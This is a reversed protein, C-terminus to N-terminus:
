QADFKASAVVGCVTATEGIHRVADEPSISTAAVPFSWLGLLAAVTLRVADMVDRKSLIVVLCQQGSTLEACRAQSGAELSVPDSLRGSRGASAAHDILGGFVQAGGSRRKRNRRPSPLPGAWTSEKDRRVGM